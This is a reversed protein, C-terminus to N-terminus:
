HVYWGIGWLDHSVNYAQQNLMEPSSWLHSVVTTQTTDDFNGFFRSTAFDCLKIALPNTNVLVNKSKVDRHATKPSSTHCAHYAQLIELVIYRFDNRMSSVSKPSYTKVFEDLNTDCKELILAKYGQGLYDMYFSNECKVVRHTKLSILKQRENVLEQAAEKAYQGTSNFLKLVKKVGCALKSDRLNEDGDRLTADIVISTVNKSIPPEVLPIELYAGHPM